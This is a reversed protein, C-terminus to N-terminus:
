SEQEKSFADRRRIATALDAALRDPPMTGDLVMDPRLGMSADRWTVDLHLLRDAVRTGWRGDREVIRREREERPVELLVVVDSQPYPGMADVLMVPRVVFGYGGEDSRRQFATFDVDPTTTATGFPLALRAALLAWDWRMPRSFYAELSERARRPVLFMDTPVRSAHEEGLARAVIKAAQSKGAGSPGCISVVLPKPM